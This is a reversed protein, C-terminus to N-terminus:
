RNTYKKKSESKESVVTDSILKESSNGCATSYFLVLAFYLFFVLKLLM